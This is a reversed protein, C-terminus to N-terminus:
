SLDSHRIIVARPDDCQLDILDTRSVLAFVCAACLILITLITQM